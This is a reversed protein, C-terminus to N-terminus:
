VAAGRELPTADLLFPQAAAIVSPEVVRLALADVHRALGFLQALAHVDPVGGVRRRFVASQHEDVHARGAALRKRHVVDDIGVVAVIDHQPM